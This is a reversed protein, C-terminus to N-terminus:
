FPDALIGRTEIQASLRRHRLVGVGREFFNQEAFDECPHPGGHENTVVLSTARLPGFQDGAADVGTMEFGPMPGHFQQDFSRAHIRM